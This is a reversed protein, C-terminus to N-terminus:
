GTCRHTLVFAPSYHSRKSTFVFPASTLTLMSSLAPTITSSTPALALAGAIATHKEQGIAAFPWTSSSRTTGSRTTSIAGRRHPSSRLRPVRYPLPTFIRGCVRGELSLSVWTDTNVQSGGDKVEGPAKGDRPWFWVKIFADTREM